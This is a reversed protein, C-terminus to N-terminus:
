LWSIVPLAQTPPLIFITKFFHHIPYGHFGNELYTNKNNQKKKNGVLFYM